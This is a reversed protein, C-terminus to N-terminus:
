VRGDSVGLLRAVQSVTMAQCLTVLLAEMQLSFGSNPRAWPMPPVCSLSPRLAVVGTYGYSRANRRLTARSRQHLRL